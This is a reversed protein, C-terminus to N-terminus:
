CIMLQETHALVLSSLNHSVISKPILRKFFRVDGHGEAAADVDGEAETFDEEGHPDMDSGDTAEPDERATRRGGRTRLRRGKTSM